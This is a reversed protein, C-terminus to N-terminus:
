AKVPPPAAPVPATAAAKHAKRTTTAKAAAVAKVQVTKAAKKPTAFGFDTYTTSAEGFTGALYKRLPPIMAVAAARAADRAQKKATVATRASDLDAQAQLYAQFVAAIAQPTISKGGMVIAAALYQAIAALIKTFLLTRTAVTSKKNKPM